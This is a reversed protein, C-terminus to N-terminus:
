LNIFDMPAQEILQQTKTTNELALKEMRGQLISMAQMIVADENGQVVMMSMAANDKVMVAAETRVETHGAIKHAAAETFYYITKPRGGVSETKGKSPTFDLDNVLNLRQIQDKAWSVHDKTSGLLEQLERGNKTFSDKIMVAAKTRVESHISIRNAAAKTLMFDYRKVNKRVGTMESVKVFDINPLLKLRQIQDNIWHNFQNKVGLLIHLDRASESFEKNVGLATM